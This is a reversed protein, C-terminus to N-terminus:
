LSYVRGHRRGAIKAAEERCGFGAQALVMVWTASASCSTRSPASSKGTAIPPAAVEYAINVATIIGSTGRSANWLALLIGVIAGFRLAGSSAAVL